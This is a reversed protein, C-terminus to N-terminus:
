MSLLQFAKVQLSTSESLPNLTCSSEGADARGRPLSRENPLSKPSHRSEEALNPGPTFIIM